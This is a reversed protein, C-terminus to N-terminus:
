GTDAKDSNEATRLDLSRRMAEWIADRRAQQEDTLPPRLNQMNPELHFRSRGTRTMLPALQGGESLRALADLQHPYLKLEVPPRHSSRHLRSEAQRADSPLRIHDLVRMEGCAGRLLVSVASFPDGFDVGIFVRFRRRNNRAKRWQRRTGFKPNVKM